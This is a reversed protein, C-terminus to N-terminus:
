DHCHRMHAQMHILFSTAVAQLALFFLPPPPPPQPYPNELDWENVANSSYLKEKEYLGLKSTRVKCDPRYAAKGSHSTDSIKLIEKLVIRCLLHAKHKQKKLLMDRCQQLMMVSLARAIRMLDYLRKLLPVLNYSKISESRYRGVWQEMMVNANFANLGKQNEVFISEQCADSNNHHM